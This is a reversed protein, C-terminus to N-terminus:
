KEAEAPQAKKRGVAKLLRCLYHGAAAFLIIMAAYDAFFLLRSESYDFFAFKVQVFLYDAIGRKIFAYVGYGSILGAIIRLIMRRATSDNKIRFMRRMGHMMLGAHNGLHLSMLVFGWYATTMHVTRACGAGSTISLFPVAHRSMLIGSVPLALMIVCLLINLVNTYIRFPTYRGKFITGFWRRNLIHHVIFVAFMAIGLWEHIDEGILAYSMLLPLLIIMICDTIIRLKKM